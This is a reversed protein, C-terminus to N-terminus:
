GIEHRVFNPPAVAAAGVLPTWEAVHPQRTHAASTEVSEWEEYLRLVGGGACDWSLTYDVCGEEARCLEQFRSGAETISGIKDADITVSGTIVVKM